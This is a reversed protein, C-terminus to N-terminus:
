ANPRVINGVVAVIMKEEDDITAEIRRPENLGLSALFVRASVSAQSRQRCQITYATECASKFAIKGEEVDFLFDVNEINNKSLWTTLNYSFSIRTLDKNITIFTGNTRRNKHRRKEFKELAMKTEMRAALHNIM